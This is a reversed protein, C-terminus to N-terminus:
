KATINVQIIQERCGTPEPVPINATNERTFVSFFRNHLEAVEGDEQFYQLTCRKPTGGRAQM